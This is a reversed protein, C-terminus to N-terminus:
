ILGIRSAEAETAAIVGEVEGMLARFTATLPQGSVIEVDGFAIFFAINTEYQFEVDGSSKFLIIENKASDWRPRIMSFKGAGTVVKMNKYCTGGVANGVPQILRHKSSGCLVNLSWLLDNGGKYAKYGSFLATIENPLDKCRGRVLNEFHAPDPAFPFYANKPDEVGAAVACAYGTQDLASRLDEAIRACTHSWKAPITETLKIKHLMTIGDNDPEIVQAYPAADFFAQIGKDLAEIDENAGQIRLKPSNFIDTM